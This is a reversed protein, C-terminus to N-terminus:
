AKKKAYQEIILSELENLHAEYAKAVKDLDVGTIMAIAVVVRRDTADLM